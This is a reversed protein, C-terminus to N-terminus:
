PTPRPDALPDGPVPRPQPIFPKPTPRPDALPLPERVFAELPGVERSPRQGLALGCGVVTCMALAVAIKRIM